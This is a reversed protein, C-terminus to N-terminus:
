LLLRIPIFYFIIQDKEQLTLTHYRKEVEFDFKLEDYHIKLIEGDSFENWLQIDYCVEGIQWDFNIWRDFTNIILTIVGYQSKSINYNEVIM